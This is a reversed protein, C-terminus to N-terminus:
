DEENKPHWLERRQEEKLEETRMCLPPHDSYRDHHLLCVSCFGHTGCEALCPCKPNYKLEEGLIELPPPPVDMKTM